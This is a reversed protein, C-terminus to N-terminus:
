ASYLRLMQVAATILATAVFRYLHKSLSLMVAEKAWGSGIEGQFVSEL